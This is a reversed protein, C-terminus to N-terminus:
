AIWHILRVLEVASELSSARREVVPAAGLRAPVVGDRGLVFALTLLAARANGDAFPHVFCVDLYARGARAALPEDSMSEALLSEFLVPTSETIGYRERGGKAYAVQQRFGVEPVGLVIRQWGALMAFNLARASAADSRVQELAALM